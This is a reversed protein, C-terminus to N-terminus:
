STKRISERLKEPLDELKIVKYGRPVQGLVKGLIIVRNPDTSVTIVPEKRGELTVRAKVYKGKELEIYVYKKKAGRM